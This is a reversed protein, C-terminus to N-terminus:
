KLEKLFIMVREKIKGLNKELFGALFILVLGIISLALWNDLNPLRFSGALIYGGFVLTSCFSIQLSQKEKLQFAKVTMFIPIILAFLEFVLSCEAIITIMMIVTSFSSLIRQSRGSTHLSYSLVYQILTFVIFISYVPVKFIDKAFIAGMFLPFVYLGQVLSSTEVKEFMDKPTFYLALTLVFCLIMYFSAELPYLFTRGLLILGPLFIMTKALNNEFTRHGNLKKALYLAGTLLGSFVVTSVYVNRSPILFTLASFLFFCSLTKARERFLVKFGTVVTPITILMSLFTIFYLNTGEPLALNFVEMVTDLPKNFRNLVFAGLQAMHVPVMALSLSLFTRTTKYEKWYKYCFLGLLNMVLSIGLFLLYTTLSNLDYKGSILFQIASIIIAVAGTLRIKKAINSHTEM